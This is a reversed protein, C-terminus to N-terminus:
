GELKVPIMEPDSATRLIRGAEEKGAIGTVPGGRDFLFHEGQEDRILLLPHNPLRPDLTGYVDGIIIFKGKGTVLASGKEFPGFQLDEKRLVAGSEVFRQKSKAVGGEIVHKTGQSDIIFQRTEKDM